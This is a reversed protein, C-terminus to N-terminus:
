CDDGQLYRPFDVTNVLQGVRMDPKPLEPTKIKLGEKRGKLFTKKLKLYDDYSAPNGGRMKPSSDGLGEESVLASKPIPLYGTDEEVPTMAQMLLEYETM